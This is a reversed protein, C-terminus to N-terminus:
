YTIDCINVSPKYLPMVAVKVLVSSFHIIESISALYTQQRAKILDPTKIEEFDGFLHRCNLDVLLMLVTGRSQSVTGM